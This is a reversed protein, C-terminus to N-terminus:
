MCWFIKNSFPPCYKQMSFFIREEKQLYFYKQKFFSSRIKANFFSVNRRKCYFINKSVFPPVYKKYSVFSQCHLTFHRLLHADGRILLIEKSCDNVQYCHLNIGSWGNSVKKSEQHIKAGKRVSATLSRSTM